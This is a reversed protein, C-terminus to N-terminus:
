AENEKVCAVRHLPKCRTSISVILKSKQLTQQVKMSLADDIVAPESTRSMTARLHGIKIKLENGELVDAVLFPYEVDTNFPVNAHENEEHKSIYNLTNTVENSILIEKNEGITKIM